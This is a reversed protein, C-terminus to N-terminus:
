GRDPPMEKAELQLVAVSLGQLQRRAAAAKCVSFPSMGSDLSRLTPRAGLFM